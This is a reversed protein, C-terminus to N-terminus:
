KNWVFITKGSDTVEWHAAGHRVVEEKYVGDPGPNLWLYILAVLVLITLVTYNFIDYFAKLM